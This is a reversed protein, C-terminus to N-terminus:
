QEWYKSILKNWEVESACQRGQFTCMRMENNKSMHSGIEKAFHRFLLVRGTASQDAHDDDVLLSVHLRPRAEEFKCLAEAAVGGVDQSAPDFLQLFDVSM